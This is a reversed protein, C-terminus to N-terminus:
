GNGEEGFVAAEDSLCIYDVINSTELSRSNSPRASM